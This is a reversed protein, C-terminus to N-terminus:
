GHLSTARIAQISKTFGTYSTNAKFNTEIEDLQTFLNNYLDSEKDYKITGLTSTGYNSYIVPGYIATLKSIALIRVLKAWDGFLPLNYEQALQIVQKTPSMVSGYVRNWYADIWRLYYTTNNVNSVFPTPTGMFGMWNDYCLDEEIQHGMLNFMFTPFSGGVLNFDQELLKKSIQNPNTNIEEFNKTCSNFLILALVMLCIKKM